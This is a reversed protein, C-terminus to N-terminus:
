VKGSGCPQIELSNVHEGLFIAPARSRIGSVDYEGAPITLTSAGLRVVRNANAHDAKISAVEFNPQAAWL